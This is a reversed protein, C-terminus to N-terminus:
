LSSREYFAESIYNKKPGEVKYRVSFSELDPGPSLFSFHYSTNYTDPGCFHRTGSACVAASRSATPAATGDFDTMEHFLNDATWGDRKVFWVSVVDRDEDYRYIYKKKADLKMQPNNSLTFTGFESYLYEYEYGRDIGEHPRDGESRRPLFNATGEFLGGPVDALHSVIRRHVKWSGHLARFVSVSLFTSNLTERLAHISELAEQGTNQSSFHAPIIPDIELEDKSSASSDKISFPTGKVVGLREALGKMIGMYDGWSWQRRERSGDEEIRGKERSCRISRMAEADKSLTEQEPWELEGAFLAALYRAQLEIVGFYPGKYMGVFGITTTAPHPLDTSCPLFMQQPLVAPLFSADPNSPSATYEMAHLIGPSLFKNLCPKYGTCSIVADVETITELSSNPSLTLTIRSDNSIDTIRGIVIEARKERMFNAYTDSITVWPLSWMWGNEETIELHPSLDAQAHARYGLLTRFNQNSQYFREAESPPVSSTNRFSSADYFKLDLPLFKVPSKSTDDLSKKLHPLFRPLVWFPRPSVHVVEWIDTPREMEGPTREASSTGPRISNINICLDSVVEVASLSGGIVVIKRKRPLHNAEATNSSPFCSLVRDFAYESSHLVRLPHMAAKPDYRSFPLFAQPFWPRAFFGAAVIVFDFYESTEKTGDRLFSVKWLRHGPQSKPEM